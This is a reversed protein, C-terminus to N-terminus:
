CMGLEVAAAPALVLYAIGIICFASHALLALTARIGLYWYVWCAMIPIQSVIILVIIAKALGSARGHNRVLSVALVIAAALLLLAYQGVIAKGFGVILYFLGCVICAAVYAASLFRYTTQM